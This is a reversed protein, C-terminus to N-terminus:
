TQYMEFPFATVSHLFITTSTLLATNFSFDLNANVKNRAVRSARERKSPKATQKGLDHQMYEGDVKDRRKIKITKNRFFTTISM